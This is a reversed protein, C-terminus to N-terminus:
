RLSRAAVIIRPDEYVRWRRNVPLDDDVDAGPSLPVAYDRGLRLELEDAGPIDYLDMFFGLRRNLAKSDFNIAYDVLRKPDLREHEWADRLANAVVPVPAALRPRDLSDILAKEVNAIRVRAGYFDIEEWGFFREPIVTVFRIQSVGLRAPRKRDKVAVLLRSAQQDILGHRWLASHWSLYYDHRLRALITAALPDLADLRPRKSPQGDVNVVYRGRQVTHLLGKQRMRYIVDKPSSTIAELWGRDLKLDLTRRGERELRELIEAEHGRAIPEVTTPM